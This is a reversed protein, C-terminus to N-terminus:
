RYKHYLLMIGYNWTGAMVTDDLSNKAKVMQECEELGKIDTDASAAFSHRSLM